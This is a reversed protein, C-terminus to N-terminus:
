HLLAMLLAYSFLTSLNSVTKYEMSLDSQRGGFFMTSDMAFTELAKLSM